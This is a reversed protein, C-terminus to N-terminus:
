DTSCRVKLGNTRPELGLGTVEGPLSVEPRYVDMGVVEPLRNAAMGDIGDLSNHVPTCQEPIRRATLASGPQSVGTDDTGTKAQTEPRSGTPKLSPLKSTAAEIDHLRPRIYRETLKQSGHRMIRQVVGTSIGAADALTATQCRLGHFDFVLGSDDKYPIKAAKLDFRLMEAGKGGPLPFVPSGPHLSAVYPRLDAVLDDPLKLRAEKGNKTYGAAITVASAEFDFSAATISAIESFRLGTAVALRYCLARVPGSMARFAPGEEAVEVLRKLEAVTITRRDHRRDEKENYIALNELTYERLRGTRKAWRAFGRAATRYHNCTAASRNADRIAAIAAQVKEETIDSLRAKAVLLDVTEKARAKGDRTMTKGDIEDPRAGYVVAVLRRLRDASLDAHKATGDKHLLSERWTDIHESLPRAGHAAYADDKADIVGRRRLEAESELKRAMSETAAKDPCGKVVRRVDRGDIYDVFAVYWSAMRNGRDRKRKYVSAM